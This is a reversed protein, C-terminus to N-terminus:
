GGMESVFPANLRGDEEETVGGFLAKRLVNSVLVEELIQALSADPDILHSDFPTTDM